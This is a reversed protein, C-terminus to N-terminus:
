KMVFPLQLENPTSSFFVMYTNMITVVPAFTGLVLVHVYKQFKIAMKTLELEAM